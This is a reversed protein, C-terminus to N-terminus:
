PSLAHHKQGSDTFTVKGIKAKLVILFTVCTWEKRLYISMWHWTKYTIFHADSQGELDALGSGGQDLIQWLKDRVRWDALLAENECM